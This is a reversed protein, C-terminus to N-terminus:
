NLYYRRSLIVYNRLTGLERLMKAMSDAYISFMDSNKHQMIFSDRKSIYFSKSKPSEYILPNRLHYILDLTMEKYRVYFQEPPIIRRTIVNEQHWNKIVHRQKLMLRFAAPSTYFNIRDGNSFSYRNGYDVFALDNFLTFYRGSEPEYSLWPKEKGFLYATRKGTDLIKDMDYWFLNHISPRAGMIKYYDSGLQNIPTFGRPDTLLKSHDIVSIKTNPLDLRQLLPFANAYIPGNHHTDSGREDDQSFAGMVMIEDIHIGNYYFVELM